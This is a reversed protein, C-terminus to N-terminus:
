ILRYFPFFAFKVCQNFVQALIYCVKNAFVTVAPSGVGYREAEKM